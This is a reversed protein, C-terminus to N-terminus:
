FLYIINLEEGPNLKSLQKTGDGVIKILLSITHNIYDVDYVSIPRRLFTKPSSEVKIQVFQGPFIDPIQKGSQLILVFFEENLLKNDIVKLSEIQKKM